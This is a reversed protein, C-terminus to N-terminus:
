AHALPNAGTEYRPLLRSSTVWVWAHGCPRAAADVTRRGVPRALRQRAPAAPPPGPRPTIALPASPPEPPHARTFLPKTNGISETKQGRDYRRGGGQDGQTLCFGQRGQSFPRQLIGVDHPAGVLPRRPSRLRNEVRSFYPDYWERVEEVTRIGPRFFQNVEPDTRWQAISVLGDRPFDDITLDSMAYKEGEVLTHHCVEIVRLCKGRRHEWVATTLQIYTM